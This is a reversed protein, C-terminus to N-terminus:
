DCAPAKPSSSTPTTCSGTSPPPPVGVPRHGIRLPEHHIQRGRVQRLRRADLLEVPVPVERGDRDSGAPLECRGHRGSPLGDRDDDAPEITRASGPTLTTSNKCRRPRSCDGPPVAAVDHCVPVRATAWAGTALASPHSRPVCTNMRRPIRMGICLGSGTGSLLRRSSSWSSPRCCSSGSRSGPVPSVDKSRLPPRTPSGAMRSGFVDADPRRTFAPPKGRTGWM